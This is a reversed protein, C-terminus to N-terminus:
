KSGKLSFNTINNVFNTCINVNKSLEMNDRVKDAIYVVTENSIIMELLAETCNTGNNDYLVDDDLM